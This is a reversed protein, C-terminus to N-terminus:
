RARLVYYRQATAGERISEPLHSLAVHKLDSTADRGGARDCFQQVCM